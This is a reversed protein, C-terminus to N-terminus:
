ELYVIREKTSTINAIIEVYQEFSAAKIKKILLEEIQFMGASHEMEILIALPKKEGEQIRVKTISLASMSHIDKKGMIYPIRARGQQMDCADAVPVIKGELSDPPWNPNGMHAIIGEMITSKKRENLEIQTSKKDYYRNIIERALIIGFLEHQSRMVSNGIDHLYAAAIVVELSDEFKAYKSESMLNPKIGKKYLLQLIKVANFTAIHSHTIGHDNYGLRQIAVANAANLMANVQPDKKLFDLLTKANKYPKLRFYLNDVLEELAM